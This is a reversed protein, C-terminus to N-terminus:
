AQGPEPLKVAPGQVDAAPLPQGVAYVSAGRAQLGTEALAFRANMGADPGALAPVTVEIGAHRLGAASDAVLKSVGGSSGIVEARAGLIEGLDQDLMVGNM